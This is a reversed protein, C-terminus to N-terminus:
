RVIPLGKLISNLSGKPTAYEPQLILTSSNLMNHWHFRTRVLIIIEMHM